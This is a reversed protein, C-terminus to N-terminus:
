TQEVDEGGETAQMPASEERVAATASAMNAIVDSMAETQQQMHLAATTTPRPEKHVPMGDTTGVHRPVLEELVPSEDTTSVNKVRGCVPRGTKGDEFCKPAKRKRPPM